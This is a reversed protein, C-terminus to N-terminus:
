NVLPKGRDLCSWPRKGATHRTITEALTWVQAPLSDVPGSATYVCSHLSSESGERNRNLRNIDAGLVHPSLLSSLSACM